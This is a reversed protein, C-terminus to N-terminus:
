HVGPYIPNTGSGSRSRMKAGSHILDPTPADIMEEDGACTPQGQSPVRARIRLSAQEGPNNVYEACWHAFTAALAMKWKREERFDTQLWKMEKLLHDHHSTPRAPEAQKKIQRLSWRNANQLQYVRKLIKYDQNERLMALYGATSLTKRASSVLNALPESRPPQHAQWRFLGELYDRNGDEDAGQLSAYDSNHLQLEKIIKQPDEPKAFIVTAVEKRQQERPRVKAPSVAAASINSSHPTLNAKRSAREGNVESVSKKSSTSSPIPTSARERSPSRPQQSIEVQVKDTPPADGMEVDVDAPPTPHEVSSVTPEQGADPENKATQPDVAPPEPITTTPTPLSDVPTEQMPTQEEVDAVNSSVEHTIVEAQETLSVAPESGRLRSAGDRALRIAQEEELQREVEPTASSEARARERAEQMQQQLAREHEEKAQRAAPDPELTEQVAPPIHATFSERDPSTDPSQHTAYPTAQSYPGVTSSPSSTIDAPANAVPISLNREEKRDQARAQELHKETERLRSEQEDQPPLHVVQPPKSEELAIVAPSPENPPGGSDEATPPVVLKPDASPDDPPIEAPSEKKFPEPEGPPQAPTSEAANLL